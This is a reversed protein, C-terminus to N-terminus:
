ANIMDKCTNLGERRAVRFLEKNNLWLWGAGGSRQFNNRTDWADKHKGAM